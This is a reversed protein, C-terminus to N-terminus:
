PVRAEDLGGRLYDRTSVPKLQTASLVLAIISAALMIWFALHYNRTVDFIFGTAVPGIAGGAQGLSLVMGYNSGHSRVGFLEAVLPSIIAFFGGHAFGYVAAFLYLRWLEGQTLELWVMSVTLIVFCVTLARRNGLGDGAGGMVLWGPISVAGIISLVAAAQTPPIGGDTSYTVLHIMISQTIYWAIFYLACLMWFQRTRLTQRPSLQVKEFSAPPPEGARPTGYPKLDMTGPDRKLLPTFLLIGVVGVVSLVVYADRWGYKTILWSAALPMIFMGIGTGVKVLSSMLGRRRIFWRTTTSLLTVNGSSNGLGVVLPLVLFLQWLSTLRSMLFYGVGVILGAGIIVVRPGYKDTLRGHIMAFQGELFFELSSAASITARNAGFQNQLSAFFVGYTNYIGHMVILIFLSVAVIVYGYFFKANNDPVV